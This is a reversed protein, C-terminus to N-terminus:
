KSIQGPTWSRGFRSKLGGLKFTDYLLNTAVLLSGEVGVRRGGAGGGGLGAGGGKWGKLENLLAGGPAPVQARPCGTGPGGPAGQPRARRM